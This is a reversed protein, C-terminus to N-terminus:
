VLPGDRGAHAAGLRRHRHLRPPAGREAREGRDGLDRGLRVVQGLASRGMTFYQQIYGLQTVDVEDICFDVHHGTFAGTELITFTLSSLNCPATALVGSAPCAGNSVVPAAWAKVGTVGNVAIPVGGPAVDAVASQNFSMVFYSYYCVNPGYGLPAQYTGSSLKTPVQTSTQPEQVGNCYVGGYDTITANTSGPITVPKNAVLNNGFGQLYVTVSVPSATPMSSPLSNTQGSISNIVLETNTTATRGSAPALYIFGNQQFTNVANSSGAPVNCSISNGQGDSYPATSPSFTVPYASSANWVTIFPTTEYASATNYTNLTQSTSASPILSYVGNTQQYVSVTGASIAQKNYSSLLSQIPASTCSGAQQTTTNVNVTNTGVSNAKPLSGPPLYQYAFVGLVIIIFLVIVLSATSTKAIRNRKNQVFDM